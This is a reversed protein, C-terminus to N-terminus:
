GGSAKGGLDAADLRVIGRLPQSDERERMTQM